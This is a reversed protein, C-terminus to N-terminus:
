CFVKPCHHFVSASDYQSIASRFRMEALLLLLDVGLTDLFEPGGGNHGIGAGAVEAFLLLSCVM